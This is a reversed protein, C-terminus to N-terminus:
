RGRAPGASAEEAVRATARARARARTRRRAATATAITPAIQASPMRPCAAAPRRRRPACSARASRAVRQDRDGGAVEDGVVERQQGVVALVQPPQGVVREAVARVQEAAGSEVDVVADDAGGADPVDLDAREDDAVDGREHEGVVARELEVAGGARAVRECITMSTSITANM